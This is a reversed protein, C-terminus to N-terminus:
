DKLNMYEWLIVMAYIVLIIIGFLIPSLSMYFTSLIMLLIIWVLHSIPPSKLMFGKFLLSWILFIMSWWIFSSVMHPDINWSPHALLFKSAVALFIIGFVIPIHCYHYALLAIKWPNDSKKIVNTGVSHWFNFYVSWMAVTIMFCLVFASISYMNWDLGTFSWGNVLIIEGLCIIIFLGCRESMYEGSINWDKAWTKWLVPFWFWIAPNILEIWIAIWWLTIRADGQSLWGWIWFIASIILRISTLKTAKHVEAKYDKTAFAVFITRVVQMFVYAIAFYLWKAGFAEPIATSLFLGALMMAYLLLRVPIKNPNLWNLHWTTYIWVTWVSLTIIMIEIFWLWHFSGAFTNSLQIITFVLVLDYFLEVFTVRTGWAWDSSRLLKNQGFLHM